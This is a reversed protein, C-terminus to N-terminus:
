RATVVVKEDSDEDAAPAAPAAPAAAQAFGAPALAVALGAFAVGMLLNRRFRSSGLDLM